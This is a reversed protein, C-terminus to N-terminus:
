SAPGLSEVAGSYYAISTPWICVLLPAAKEESRSIIVLRKVSQQQPPLWWPCASHGGSGLVWVTAQSVTAQLGLPVSAWFGSVDTNHAQWGALGRVLTNCAGLMGVEPKAPQHIGIRTAEPVAGDCKLRNLGDGLLQQLFEHLDAEKVLWKNYQGEIQLCQMLRTQVLPSISHSVPYGVLGLRLM